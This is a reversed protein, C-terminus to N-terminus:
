QGGTETHIITGYLGAAWGNQADTFCLDYLYNAEGVEQATWTAGGDTTHLVAGGAVAGGAIWGESTNVFHVANFSMTTGVGADQATWTAGGNTTHIVTGNGGSIWGNLRDVFWVGRLSATVGSTQRTWTAGGNTTAYVTGADGVAWGTSPDVFTLDVLPTVNGASLQYSWTTGGNTTHMIIARPDTFTRAKGGAVWGNSADTFFVAGLSYNTGSAQIEWHQGGDSTHVIKGGSGVAWGQNVDVFHIGGYNSSTPSTQPYWNDGGDDTALLTDRTGAIWGHQDDVFFISTLVPYPNDYVQAIWGNAEGAPTKEVAFSASALVTSPYTGVKLTYTYSGAAADGALTYSLMRNTSWAEPLTFAAPGFAPSVVSGDPGALETWVAFSAPGAEGNLISVDYDFGGGTPPIVVPSNHTLGSAVVQAKVAAAPGGHDQDIAAGNAADICSAIGMAGLLLLTPRVFRPTPAAHPIGSNNTNRIM